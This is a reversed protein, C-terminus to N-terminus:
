AGTLEKSELCIWIFQTVLKSWRLHEKKLKELEAARGMVSWQLILALRDHSSIPTGMQFLVMCIECLIKLDM